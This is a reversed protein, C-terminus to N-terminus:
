SVNAPVPSPVTVLEGGPTSQELWTPVLGLAQRATKGEPVATVRVAVDAAPDARRPQVPHVPLLLLQVSVTVAESDTVAENPGGDDGDVEDPLVADPADIMVPDDVPEDPDLPPEEEPDVMPVATVEFLPEEDEDAGEEDVDEEDAEEADVDAADDLPPLELEEPAGLVRLMSKAPSPSPVTRLMGRPMSQTLPDDVGQTAVKGAPVAATASVYVGEAVDLKTPAAPGGPLWEHTLKPAAVVQETLRAGPAETPNIAV